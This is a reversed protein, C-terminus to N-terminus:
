EDNESEADESESDEAESDEDSKDKADKKNQAKKEKNKQAKSKPYCRALYKSVTHITLEEDDKIKLLKKLKADPYMISGNKKDKLDHEKVYEYIKKIIDTRALQEDADLKFFKVIDAPVDAPATIGYKPANPDKERKKKKGVLKIERKHIKELNQIVAKLTKGKEVYELMMDKAETMVAEFNPEEEKNDEDEDSDKKSKKSKTESKKSKSKEEAKKPKSKEKDSKKAKEKDDSKKAKDDSKVNKKKIPM